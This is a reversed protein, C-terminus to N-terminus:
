RDNPSRALGHKMIANEEFKDYNLILFATDKSLQM